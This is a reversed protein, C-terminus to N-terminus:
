TRELIMAINDKWYIRYNLLLDLGIVSTSTFVEPKSDFSCLVDVHNLKEIRSHISSLFAIKCDRIKRTALSTGAGITRATPEFHTCIINNNLADFDSITTMTAGTDIAFNISAIEDLFPSSLLTPTYFLGGIGRKAEIQM